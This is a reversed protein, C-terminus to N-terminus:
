ELISVLRVRRPAVATSSLSASSTGPTILSKYSASMLTQINVPSLNSVASFMALAQLSILGSNSTNLSCPFYSTALYQEFSNTPCFSFKICVLFFRAIITSFVARDWMVSNASNSIFKMLTLLVHSATTHQLSLGPWFASTTRIILFSSLDAIVRAIPSPALSTEMIFSAWIPM